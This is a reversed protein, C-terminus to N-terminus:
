IGTEEEQMRIFEVPNDTQKTGTLKGNDVRSVSWVAMDQSTLHLQTASSVRIIVSTFEKGQLVSTEAKIKNAATRIAELAREGGEKEKHRDNTPQPLVSKKERAQEALKKYHDSTGAFDGTIMEKLIAPTQCTLIRKVPISYSMNLKEARGSIDVLEFQGGVRDLTLKREEVDKILEDPKEAKKGDKQYSIFDLTYKEGGIDVQVGKFMKPIEKSRMIFEERMFEDGIKKEMDDQEKKSASREQRRLEEVKELAQRREDVTKKSPAEIKKPKASKQQERGEEQYDPKEFSPVDLKKKM